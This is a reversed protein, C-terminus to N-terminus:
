PPFAHAIFRIPEIKYLEGNGFDVADLSVIIEKKYEFKGKRPPNECIIVGSIAPEESYKKAESFPPVPGGPFVLEAAGPGTFRRINDQESAPIRVSIRSKNSEPLTFTAKIVQSGSVFFVAVYDRALYAGSKALDIQIPVSTSAAGKSETAESSCGPVLSCAVVTMVLAVIRSKMTM